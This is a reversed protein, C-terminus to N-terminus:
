FPLAEMCLVTRGAAIAIAAAIRATGADACEMVVGACFLGGGGALELAGPDVGIDPRGAEVAAIDAKLGPLPDDGERDGEMGIEVVGGIAADVPFDPVRVPDDQALVGRARAPELHVINRRPRCGLHRRGPGAHRQQDVARVIRGRKRAVRDFHRDRHLEDARDGAGREVADRGPELDIGVQM